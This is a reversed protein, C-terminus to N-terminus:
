RLAARAADALFDARTVGRVKAHADIEAVLWRPLTINVPEAGSEFHSVDVDVLAWMWGAFEPDAQWEALPRPVPIEVGDEVLAECHLEIAEVANIAADETSDGASFCGPLDPVVVGWATSDTAPEIAIPFKM